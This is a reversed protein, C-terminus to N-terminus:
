QSLTGSSGRIMDSPPPPPGFLMNWGKQAAGEVAEGAAQVWKPAEHPANIWQGHGWVDKTWMMTMGKFPGSTVTYVKGYERKSEGPDPEARMADLGTTARPATIPAAASGGISIRGASVGAPISAPVERPSASM